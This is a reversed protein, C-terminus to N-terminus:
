RQTLNTPGRGPLSELFLDIAQDAVDQQGCAEKGIGTGEVLVEPVKQLVGPLFFHRQM